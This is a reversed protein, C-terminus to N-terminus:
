YDTDKADANGGKPLEMIISLGGQPINKASIIGGMRQVTKAVIALGLGSGKRRDSRSPDARYFVDFLKGLDEESVGPGDDDFILRCNEGEDILTVCLAAREKTKYKLSNDAINVILQHLENEDIAVTYPALKFSIDLGREAYDTLLTELKNKLYEDLRLIVAHRPANNLDLRSYALICSVMDELEQAHSKITTLYRRQATPTKAVGDLLGEVYAQISTLPTRLDHSLSAMLEKRSEEERSSREVSEQLRNAMHNFDRCVSLFEDKGSYKLRYDLNGDSIQRVGDSLQKLPQEIRHWVFCTLFRDTFFVSLLIALILISGAIAVTVKLSTYSLQSQTNYIYIVYAADGQMLSRVHLNRAGTSLTGENKLAQAASILLADEKSAGAEGYRYFEKEDATVVLSMAGRDLLSTLTKLSKLQEDREGEALANAALESIGASAHIFDESDEFGVGTGYAITFWIVGLCCLAILMTIGVPVLIMLVNSVALRKKITM